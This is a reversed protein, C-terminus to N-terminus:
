RIGPRAPADRSHATFRFDSTSPTVDPPGARLLAKSLFHIKQNGNLPSKDKYYQRTTSDHMVM